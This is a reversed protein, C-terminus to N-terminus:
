GEDRMEQRDEEAAPETKEPATPSSVIVQSPRVVRDYLQFGQLVEQLVTNPPFEASPQHLIADHFNPDFPKHLAPIPTCHHRALVGELQKVVMHIGELLSAADHTKEAAEVARKVNDLVPLVDRVLPLAAYRREEEVQRLARKRYNELEAWGRLARDKAEELEARLRALEDAPAAKDGPAACPGAGGLMDPGAPPAVGQSPKPKGDPSVNPQQEAM